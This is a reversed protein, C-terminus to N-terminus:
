SPFDKKQIDDQDHATATPTSLLLGLVDTRRHSAIPMKTRISRLHEPDIDCFALTPSDDPGCDALIDGWPGIILAHGYSARNQNHIGVQAPAGIYCQTEVARARLLLHWHAKGTPITFASPVLIIDAGRQALAIYAEPFRLDYCTTLGVRGIPTDVIAARAPGPLTTKSEMLVAGGPIAVDFLHQKRYVEVIDGQDNVIIHSNSVKDDTALAKEHFGGFSCWLCHKKAIARYESFIEGDLSTAQSLTENANSGIFAFCEPLALMLAGNAKARQALIEVAALNSKACSTSTLQGVALRARM